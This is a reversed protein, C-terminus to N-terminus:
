SCRQSETTRCTEWMRIPSISPRSRIRKLSRRLCPNNEKKKLAAFRRNDSKFLFEIALENESGVPLEVAEMRQVWRELRKKFEGVGETFFQRVLAYRERLDRADFMTVKMAATLLTRIM